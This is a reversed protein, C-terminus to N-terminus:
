TFDISNVVGFSFLTDISIGFCKIIPIGVLLQSWNSKDDITLSIINDNKQLNNQTILFKVREENYGYVVIYSKM